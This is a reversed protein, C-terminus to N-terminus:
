PVCVCLFVCLCWSLIKWKAILSVAIWIFPSFFVGFGFLLFQPDWSIKWQARPAWWLSHPSLTDSEKKSPNISWQKKSLCMTVSLPRPYATHIHIRESCQDRGAQALEKWKTLNLFYKNETTHGQQPLSMRLHLVSGSVERPNCFRHAWTM